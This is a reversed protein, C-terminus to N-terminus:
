RTSVGGVTASILELTGRVESRQTFGMTTVDVTGGEELKLLGFQPSTWRFGTRRVKTVVNVGQVTLNSDLDTETAFKCATFTGADVTISERALLTVKDRLDETTNVGQATSRVKWALEQSEGVQFARKQEIRIPENVSRSILAGSAPNFAEAGFSVITGDGNQVYNKAYVGSGASTQGSIEQLLASQGEFTASGVVRETRTGAGDQGEDFRVERVDGVSYPPMCDDGSGGGGGSGGYPEVACVNATDGFLFRQISKSQSVGDVTYDFTANEGDSFRLRVSGVVPGQGDNAPAGNIQLFPTGNSSRYLDGAFSGDAGRTTVGQYFIPERDTDYTYWTLFLDNDVHSIHVGWGPSQPNWWLDTFNTASARSAAGARCVVDKDNNGFAFRTLQKVQTQGDVSYSFRLSNDGEFALVTSGLLTEPDAAQGQIQALPVGEIRLFDGRYSGDAQRTTPALFWAPEGDRDHTFWYPVLLNGQDAIYLGWGPESANWWVTSKLPTAAAPAAVAAVALGVALALRHPVRSM